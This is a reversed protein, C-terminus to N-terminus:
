HPSADAVAFQRSEIADIIEAAACAIWSRSQSTPARYAGLAEVCVGLVARANEGRGSAIRMLRAHLLMAFSSRPVPAPHELLARFVFQRLANFDSISGRALKSATAELM